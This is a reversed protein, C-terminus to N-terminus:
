RGSGMPTLLRRPPRSFPLGEVAVLNHSTSFQNMWSYGTALGTRKLVIYHTHAGRTPAWVAVLREQGEELIGM